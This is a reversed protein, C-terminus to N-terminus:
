LNELNRLYGRREVLYAGSTLFTANESLPAHSQILWLVSMDVVDIAPAAAKVGHGINNISQIWMAMAKYSGLHTRINLLM